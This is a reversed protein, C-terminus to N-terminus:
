RMGKHKAKAKRDKESMKDKRKDMDRLHAEWSAQTWDGTLRKTSKQKAM